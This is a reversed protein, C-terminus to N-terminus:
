PAVWAHRFAVYVILGPVNLAFVVAAWLLGVAGHEEADVFVLYSVGLWVLVAMPYWGLAATIFVYHLFLSFPVAVALVSWVVARASHRAGWHGQLFPELDRLWGGAPPAARLPPMEIVGLPAACHPCREPDGTVERECSRCRM